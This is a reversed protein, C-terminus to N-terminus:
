HMGAREEAEYAADESLVPPAAKPTINDVRWCNHADGHRHQIWKRAGGITVPQAKNKGILIALQQGSPTNGKLQPMMSNIARRLAPFNVAPPTVGSGYGRLERRLLDNAELLAHIDASPAEGNTSVTAIAEELGAVLDALGEKVTPNVATAKTAIPDALGCFVIAGRVVRDWDDFSGWRGGWGELDTVKLGSQLWARLMTLAAEFLEARNAELYAPMDDIDFGTRAEPDDLDTVIRITCIRRTIDSSKYQVNNGAAYLVMYCDHAPSENTGLLRPAWTGTTILGQLPGSGFPKDCEDIFVIPQATLVKSTIFKREEEEDSTQVTHDCPRGLSVASIMNMMFGKGSGAKNADFMFVPTQGRFCWRAIPTLMGALFSSRAAPSELPVQAVLRLLKKSAEIADDRTLKEPVEVSIKSVCLVGSEADYGAEQIIRGDHLLTPSEALHYLPPQDPYYGRAQVAKVSWDPPHAAVTTDGGHPDEKVESWRAARSMYERLLPDTVTKVEAKTYAEAEGPRRRKTEVARVFTGFRTYLNPLLALADIAQDNTQGEDPTIMVQPLTSRDPRKHVSAARKREKARAKVSRVFGQLDKTPVYADSLRKRLREMSVEDLSAAFNLVRDSLLAEGKSQAVLVAASDVTLSPAVGPSDPGQSNPTSM